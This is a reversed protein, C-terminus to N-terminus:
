GNPWGISRSRLWCSFPLTNCAPCASCGAYFFLRLAFRLQREGSASTIETYNNLARITGDANRTPGSANAGPSAFQPSNTVGFAEARFQLKFRETLKFDRFLSADLNVKGPGRLINRGSNGFRVATVPM